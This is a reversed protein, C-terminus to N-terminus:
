NYRLWPLQEGPRRNPYKPALQGLAGKQPGPPVQNNAPMSKWYETSGVKFKGPDQAHFWFLSEWPKATPTSTDVVLIENNETYADLLSYFGEKTM